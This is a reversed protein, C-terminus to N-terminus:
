FDVDESLAVVASKPNLHWLLKGNRFDKGVEICVAHAKKLEVEEGCLATLLQELEPKHGVLAVCNYNGCSELLEILPQPTTDLSTALAEEVRYIQLTPLYPLLYAATQTARRFPSSFIAKVDPEHLAILEGLKRCNKIGRSTLAQNEETVGQTYEREAHRILIIRM